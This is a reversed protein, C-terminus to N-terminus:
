KENQKLQRITYANELLDYVMEYKYEKGNAQITCVAYEVENLNWYVTTPRSICISSTQKESNESEQEVTTLTGKSVEIITEDYVKIEMPISNQLDRAQATSLAYPTQEQNLTRTEYLVPLGEVSMVHNELLYMNGSFIVVAVCAAAVAFATIQRRNKRRTMDVNKRIQKKLEASANIKQYKEVDKQQFM